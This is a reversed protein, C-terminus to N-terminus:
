FKKTSPKKVQLPKGKCNEKAIFSWSLFPSRGLTLIALKLSALVLTQTTIRVTNKKQCRETQCNELTRIRFIFVAQKVADRSKVCARVCVGRVFEWECCSQLINIPPRWRLVSTSDSFSYKLLHPTMTSATTIVSPAVLRELPNPKTM